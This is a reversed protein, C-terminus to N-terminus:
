TEYIEHFQLIFYASCLLWGTIFVLLQYYYIINWLTLGIEISFLVNCLVVTYHNYFYFVVRAYYINHKNSYTYIMQM